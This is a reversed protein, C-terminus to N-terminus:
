KKTVSIFNQLSTKLDKATATKGSFNINDVKWGSDLANILHVTDTWTIKPTVSSNELEVTVDAHSGIPKTSESVDITKIKYTTYGEYLSTFISGEMLSPKDTPHTSKKVKDIDAKSVDIAEQFTNELDPSFLDKIVPQSYIADSSKGYTSYLTELKKTIEADANEPRKENKVCSTLLMSIGLCLFLRKM